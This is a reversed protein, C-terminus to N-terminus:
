GDTPKEGCHSALMPGELRWVWLEDRAGPDHAFVPIDQLWPFPTLANRDGVLWVRSRAVAACLRQAFVEPTLLVRQRTAEDFRGAEWLEKRWNDRLAVQPDDWQAVVWAPESLRLYFALDYQYKGLMVMPEYAHREALVLDALPRFSEGRHQAVGLVVAICLLAGTAGMWRCALVARAPGRGASQEMWHRLVIALVVALAPLAPLVYGVLKSNPLSFFLLILGLWIWLLPRLRLADNVSWSARRLLRLLGLTWPLCLLLIVPVYFWFPHANNFHTGTYRRFHHYVVLYDFSGPYRLEMWVFWPAVLVAFLVLGPWWLLVSIARFRRTFLLWFFLIGGPLVVGILGKALLGAAAFTYMLLVMPRQAQGAEELLVAHAGALLTATIMGAVLMDLNAFQAAVFFFPQTVLILMALAATRIDQHYRVFLYIAMAALWAGLLSAVRGAIEIPGFSQLGFATIWYFLPPKHFFPLGNLLPVSWDGTQVMQWAVGVYRGEDPLMLPRLGALLSLWVALILGVCWPRDLQPLLRREIM